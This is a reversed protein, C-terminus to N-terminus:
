APTTSWPAAPASLYWANASIDLLSVFGGADWGPTATGLVVPPSGPHPFPLDKVLWGEADADFRSSVLPPAAAAPGAICAAIVLGAARGHWSRKM